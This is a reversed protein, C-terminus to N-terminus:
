INRSRLDIDAILADLPTKRGSAYARAWSDAGLRARAERAVTAGLELGFGDVLAVGASDTAADRVGLIQAAWGDDGMLAAAAALPVLAYVIAFKDKLERIRLLSERILAIAEDPHGQRVALVAGLYAVQSLFWPGANRLVPKAQRLLREAEATDNSALAVWALGSLAQGEGWAVANVRFGAASQRLWHRAEELNGVAHEVFGAIWCTHLMGGAEDSDALALARVLAARAGDLDGQMYRMAATGNLANREAPPTL